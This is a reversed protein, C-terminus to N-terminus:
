KQDPLPAPTLAVIFAQSNLLESLQRSFVNAVADDGWDSLTEDAVLKTETLTQGNQDLVSVTLDYEVGTRRYSETWLKNISVFLTRKLAAKAVKDFIASREIKPTANITAVGILDQNLLAKYLGESLATALPGENNTYTYKRSHFLGGVYGGIMSEPAEGKLVMERKDQVVVGLVFDGHVKATINLQDVGAFAPSAALLSLALVAPLILIKM